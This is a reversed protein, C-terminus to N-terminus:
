GVSGHHSSWPWHSKSAWIKYHWPVRTVLMQVAQYLLKAVARLYVHDTDKQTGSCGPSSPAPPASATGSTVSTDGEPKGWGKWSRGWWAKWARELGGSGAGVRSQEARWLGRGDELALHSREQRCGQPTLELPPVANCGWCGAWDRPYLCQTRCM